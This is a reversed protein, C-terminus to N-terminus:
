NDTQVTQFLDAYDQAAFGLHWQEDTHLAIHLVPRKIIAPKALMLEIANAEDLAAKIDDDLQRWTTGRKNVLAEWGLPKILTQLLKQDIGDRRYDHFTFAIDQNNLWDSAKKITSCNNIGYLTHSM